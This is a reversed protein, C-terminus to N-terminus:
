KTRRTTARVDPEQTFVLGPVPTAVGTKDYLKCLARVASENLQLLEPAHQAVLKIDALKAVFKDKTSAGNTKVAEPLLSIAAQCGEADGSAALTAVQAQLAKEATRRAQYAEAIKSKLLTVMEEVPAMAESYDRDISRKEDLIPKTERVRDDELDKLLTRAETMRDAAWQEQEATEFKVEGLAKKLSALNESWTAKFTVLKGRDVAVIATGALSASEEPSLVQTSRNAEAQYSDSFHLHTM